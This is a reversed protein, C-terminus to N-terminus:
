ADGGGNIETNSSGEIEGSGRDGLEIVMGKDIWETMGGVYVFLKEAPVEYEDRLALATDESDQCEGGGCYVVVKQAWECAPRVQDITREIHYPDLPFAGPIHGETYHDESRADVFIYTQDKYEQARFTAVVDDFTIPQLGSAVIRTLASDAEDSRRGPQDEPVTRSAARQIPKSFDRTLSLGDRNAANGVLGVLLGVAAVLVCETITRPIERM